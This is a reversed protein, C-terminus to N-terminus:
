STIRTVKEKGKSTSKPSMIGWGSLDEWYGKSKKIVQPGKKSLSNSEIPNSGGNQSDNETEFDLEMETTDEEAGYDGDESSETDDSLPPTDLVPDGLSVEHAFISTPLGVETGFSTSIWMRNYGLDSRTRTGDEEVLEFLWPKGLAFTLEHPASM